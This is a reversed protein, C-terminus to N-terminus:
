GPAGELLADILAQDFGETSQRDAVFGFGQDLEWYTWGISNAEAAERVARIWRARSAPDVCFDLVGFENLIVPCGHRRSWSGIDDFDAAIRAVSWPSAFEEGLASLAVGDEADALKRQLAAVEKSGRDAPFPLNEFHAFPSGGWSECQHTFGMPTYYHVAAIANPDDLVPTELTEWIGQYRAAGWILSHDPCRRRVTAALRERLTLWRPREMPPENLLECSVGEPGFDAIVQGIADWAADAVAEAVNADTDFVDPDKGVSHLDVMVAYGHAELRKLAQELRRSAALTAASGGAGFQAGDVPLRVTGFGLTRLRALVDDSPGVGEEGDVWDPLNFGRALALVRAPGVAARAIGTPMGAGVLAAGLLGTVARRSLRRPGFHDFSNPM